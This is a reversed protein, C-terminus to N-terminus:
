SLIILTEGANVSVGQSVNLLEVTGDAPAKIENEMKMAELILLTQGRTVKDGKSVAISIVTGPMPAMISGNAAVAEKAGPKPKERVPEDVRPAPERRPAPAAAIPSHSSAPAGEGSLEEIEVKYENGNVVVRFIRM